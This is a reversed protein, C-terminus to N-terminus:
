AVEEIIPQRYQRLWADVADENWRGEM